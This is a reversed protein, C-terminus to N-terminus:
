RARGVPPTASPQCYREDMAIEAPHRTETAATVASANTAARITTGDSAYTRASDNRLWIARRAADSESGM